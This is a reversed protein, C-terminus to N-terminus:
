GMLHRYIRELDDLSTFKVVVKGRNGNYDIKVPSGLSEALRGELEIIADPRIAAPRVKAARETTEARERAAEEVQRVSWGEDAAKSAIHVAYVEDDIALLAKAHGATLERREVLAQIKAPLQLLRVTNTVTTRSKGVREAVGEHTMGFDEMLHRYAAAEELPTLDERQVNEILAETLNTDDGGEKRIVAPIDSLGAEKAARWRREGAVLTYGDGGDPRVVVPQLLGVEQISRTLSALAEDDFVSRPQSPNPVIQDIPITAFGVDPRSAPILAELGRGLGAKRGAM